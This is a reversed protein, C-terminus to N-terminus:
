ISTPLLAKWYIPFRVRRSAIRHTTTKSAAWFERFKSPPTEADLVAALTRLNERVMELDSLARNTRSPLEDGLDGKPIGVLAYALAAFLMLFHPAGLVPTGLLSDGLEKCFYDIVKAIKKKVEAEQAFDKDYKKYLADIKAQGGDRVGELLVGFMEATLADDAMRVRQRVSVIQFKDWLIQWKKSANRVAWKFDSQFKAHRKEAANLVLSYSNLRAFVELVEDDNANLLQGIAIPYSLFAQQYEQSLSSYTLGGFEAARAGLLFGDNAFDM